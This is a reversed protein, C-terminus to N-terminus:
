EGKDFMFMSYIGVALLENKSNFIKCEYIGTRSGDHYPQGVAKLYTGVPIPRLFNLKGELTVSGRGNSKSAAGAAIDALAFPVGGHVMGGLNRHKEETQLGVEAYGERIVKIEAGLLNLFHSSKNYHERFIELDM